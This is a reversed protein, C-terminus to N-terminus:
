REHENSGGAWIVQTNDVRNRARGSKSGGGHDQGTRNDLVAAYDPFSARTYSQAM